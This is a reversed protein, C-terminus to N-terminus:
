EEIPLATIIYRDPANGIYDFPYCTTVTLVEHGQPRIITRDEADVIQTEVIEYSFDGYPLQVTMIDGIELEGMRRFVTDRHGSLVIQEGQGPFMTGQYHGVGKELENENTGEIIPLDSELKPIHLIGITEGVSPSFDNNSLPVEETKNEKEKVNNLTTATSTGSVEVKEKAEVLANKQSLQESIIQYGGFGFIIAGIIFFLYSLKKM